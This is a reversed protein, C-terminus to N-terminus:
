TRWRAARNGRDFGSIASSSIKTEVSRFAIAPEDQIDPLDFLTAIVSGDIRDVYIRVYHRSVGTRGIRIAPRPDGIQRVASCIKHRFRGPFMDVQNIETKRVIWPHPPMLAWSVRQHIRARARPAGARSPCLRIDGLRINRVGNRSEACALAHHTEFNKLVPTKM